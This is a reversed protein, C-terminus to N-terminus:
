LPTQLGQLPHCLLFCIKDKFLASPLASLWYKAIHSAEMHKGEKGVCQPGNNLTQSDDSCGTSILAPSFFFFCFLFGVFCWWWLFNRELYEKMSIPVIFLLCYKM